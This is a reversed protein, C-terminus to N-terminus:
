KTGKKIDPWRWGLAGKTLYKKETVADQQNGSILMVYGPGVKSVIGVHGQWVKGRPFVGIAGVTPKELKRGWILASRALLSRTGRYGARELMANTFAMCWAVADEYRKGVADMYYQQVIPNNARGPTEKTGVEKKALDLWPANSTM